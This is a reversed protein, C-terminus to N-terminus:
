DGSKSFKPSFPIEGLLFPLSVSHQFYYTENAFAILATWVRPIKLFSSKKDIFGDLAVRLTWSTFKSSIKVHMFLMSDILFNTLMEASKACIQTCLRISFRTLWKLHLTKRLVSWRLHKVTKLFRRQLAASLRLKRIEQNCEEMDFILIIWRNRWSINNILSHQM